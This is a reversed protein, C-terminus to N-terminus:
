KEWKEWKSKLSYGAGGSIIMLVQFDVTKQKMIKKLVGNLEM